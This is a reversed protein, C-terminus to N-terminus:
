RSKKPALNINYTFLLKTAILSKRILSIYQKLYFLILLHYKVEKSLSIKLIKCSKRSYFKYNM